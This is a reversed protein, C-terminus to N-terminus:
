AHFVSHQQQETAQKQRKIFTFVFFNEVMELILFFNRNMDPIM